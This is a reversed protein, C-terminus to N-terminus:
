ICTENVKSFLSFVINQIHETEKVFQTKLITKTKQRNQTALCALKKTEFIIKKKKLVSFLFSFFNGFMSKSEKEKIM